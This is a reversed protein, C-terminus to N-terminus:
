SPLGASARPSSSASSRWASARAANVSITRQKVMLERTKHLMLVTQQDASTIPAFRM